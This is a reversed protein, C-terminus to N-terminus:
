KPVAASLKRIRHEHQLSDAKGAENLAPQKKASEIRAASFQGGSGPNVPHTGRSLSAHSNLQEEPL